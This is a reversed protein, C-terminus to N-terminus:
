RLHWRQHLPFAALRESIQEVVKKRFEVRLLRRLPTAVTIPGLEITKEFDHKGQDVM